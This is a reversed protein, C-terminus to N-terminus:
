PPDGAPRDPDASDAPSPAASDSVHEAPRCVLGERVRTTCARVRGEGEVWVLCDMCVGMGCFAGRPHGTAEHRRTALIGAALLAALLTEGERAELPEGKWRITVRPVSAPRLLRSIM